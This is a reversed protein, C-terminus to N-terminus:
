NKIFTVFGYKGYWTDGHSLMYMNCFEIKDRVQKCYVFSNDKLQIYQLDFKPKLYERIFDLALRLLLSGGRTRPMGSRVCKDFYSINEIYAFKEDQDIFIVVCM